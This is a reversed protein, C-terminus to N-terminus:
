FLVLFIDPQSMFEMEYPSVLQEFTTFQGPCWIFKNIGAKRKEQKKGKPRIMIVNKMSFTKTDQM